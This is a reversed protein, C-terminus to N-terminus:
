RGSVSSERSEAAAGIVAGIGTLSSRHSTSTLPTSNRSPLAPAKSGVTPGNVVSQRCARRDPSSGSPSFSAAARDATPGSFSSSTALGRPTCSVRGPIRSSRPPIPIPNAISLTSPRSAARPTSDASTSAEPSMAADPGGGPLSPQFTAM